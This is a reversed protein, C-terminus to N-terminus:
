NGWRNYIDFTRLMRMFLPAVRAYADDVDEGPLQPSAMCLITILNDEYRLSFNLVRIPRLMGNQNVIGKAEMWTGPQGALRIRAADLLELEADLATGLGEALVAAYPWPEIRDFEETTGDEPFPTVTITLTSGGQGNLSSFKRLVHPRRGAASSWSSPVQMAIKLGRAKEDGESLYERKFGHDFELEPCRQYSPHFILLTELIPSPINGSIRSEIEGLAQNAEEESWTKGEYLRMAKAMEEEIVATADSQEFLTQMHEIAPSFQNIFRAQALSLRAAVSPHQERISAVSLRQGECFAYASLTNELADRGQVPFYLGTRADASEEEYGEGMFAKPWRNQSDGPAEPVAPKEVPSAERTSQEPWGYGDHFRFSDFLNERLHAYGQATAQTSAFDIRVMAFRGYYSMSWMEIPGAGADGMKTHQLVRRKEKDYQNQVVELQDIQSGLPQTSDTKLGEKLMDAAGALAEPSCSGKIFEELVSATPQPDLGLSAYRFVMVYFYPPSQWQDKGPAQFGFDYGIRGKLTQEAVQERFRLIDKPFLEWGNPATLTYGNERNTVVDSFGFQAFSCASMVFVAVFMRRYREPLAPLGMAQEQGRRHTSKAAARQAVAEGPAFLHAGEPRLMFPKLVAQAQPGFCLVRPPAGELHATKHEVLTATWVDGATDIDGRRLSCLEGPRAGTLLQTRIMAAITPPAIALVADLAAEPVPMIAKGEPATCRGRKLSEVLGLAAPVEPPVLGEGAAWRFARVVHRTYRNITGRSLPAGRRNLWTARLAKLGLPAFQAAPTPGYLDVLAAVARKINESEASGERYYRAVHAAYMAALESVLLPAKNPTPASLVGESAILEAAWRRYKQETEPAGWPGFYLHKGQFKVRGQGSAKHLHLSPIEIKM